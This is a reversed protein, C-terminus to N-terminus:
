AKGKRKLGEANYVALGRYGIGLYLNKFEEGKSPVSDRGLNRMQFHVKGHKKFSSPLENIEIFGGNRKTSEIIGSFELPNGNEDCILYPVRMRPTASYYSFIDENLESIVQYAREYDNKYHIYSMALVLIDIPRSKDGTIEYYRQSIGFLSEWYEKKITTFQCEDLTNLERENYYMWAVKLLMHLSRSDNCICEYYKETTLFDVIKECIKLQEESLLKSDDRNSYLKKCSRLEQQCVFILASPNGDELNENFLRTFHEGCQNALVKDITVKQKDFLSEIYAINSDLETGDQGRRIIDDSKADVVIPAIELLLQERYSNDMHGEYEKRFLRFLANYAYENIPDADIASVLRRFQTSYRMCEYSDWRNEMPRKEAFCKEKYKALIAEIQMNCYTLEVAMANIQGKARRRLSDDYLYLPNDLIDSSKKRIDFALDVAQTLKDLRLEYDKFSYGGKAGETNNKEISLAENNHLLDWLNGYYERTFTVEISDFSCDKDNENNREKVIRMETLKQIIDGLNRLIYEHETKRRTQYEPFHSNPGIMRLFNQLDIEQTENVGGFEDYLKIYCDMIRLIIAKQAEGKMQKEVYLSAELPSRYIFSFDGNESEVYGIWPVGNIIESMLDYTNSSYLDNFYETENMVNIAIIPSVPIKFQGFMAICGDFRSLSYDTREEKERIQEKFVSLEDESLGSEQLATIIPNLSYYERHRGAQKDLRRQVYSSVFYQERFLDNELEPRLIDILRYFVNFIDNTEDGLNKWLNDIKRKEIGTYKKILSKLINQEGRDLDDDDMYRSSQIFYCGRRFVLNSAKKSCKRIQKGEVYYYLSNDRVKSDTSHEIENKQYMGSYASCVLLFRRGRNSLKLAIRLAQLDIDRYASGDWILLITTEKDCAAEIERLLNDLEDINERRRSFVGSQDNIFVVPNNHANYVRYAVAALTISKSSGPAGELIIPTNYSVHLDDKGSLINLVLSTLTNEFPRILHFDTDPLYGYWQPGKSNSDRLFKVFADRIAIEGQPVFEYLKQETLVEAIDEYRKIISFPISIPKGDYFFVRDENIDTEINDDSREKEAATLLEVLDQENWGFNRGIAEAKLINGPSVDGNIGFFNLYGGKCDDWSLVFSDVDLMESSTYDIVVMQSLADLRSMVSSLMLLANRQKRLESRDDYQSDLKVSKELGFLRVISLCNRDFVQSRVEDRKVCEIVRRPHTSNSTLFSTGLVVDKRTTIICNWPLSTIAPDMPTGENRNGIFLIMKRLSFSQLLKGIVQDQNDVIISM